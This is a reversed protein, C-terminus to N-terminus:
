TPGKRTVRADIARLWMRRLFASGPQIIRWYVAFRRASNSDTAHVRTETTVLTDHEGCPELRFNIAAKAIGPGALGKFGDPTLPSPARHGGVVILGLVIERPPADALVLFGGRVAVDILPLDRPAHLIGPAMRRGGRRLWTLTQFGRIEHPEVARVAADVRDIPAAILRAHREGFEWVPVFEDLRSAPLGMATSRAPLLAAAVAVLAGGLALAVGPWGIVASAALGGVCLALGAQLLVVGAM